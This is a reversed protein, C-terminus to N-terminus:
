GWSSFSGEAMASASPDNGTGSPVGSSEAEDERDTSIPNLHRSSEGTDGYCEAEPQTIVGHAM